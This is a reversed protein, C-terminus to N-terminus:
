MQRPIKGGAKMTTVHKAVNTYERRMVHGSWSLRKQTVHTTIPKVMADSSFMENRIRDKKTKGQIWRLMNMETTHMRQQEARHLAWCESDYILTPRIVSKYLKNKLKVPVKKDSIVGLYDEGLTGRQDFETISM